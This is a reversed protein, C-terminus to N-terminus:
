PTALHASKRKGAIHKPWCIAEAEHGQGPQEEERRRAAAAVRQDERRRRAREVAPQQILQHRQKLLLGAEVHLHDRDAGALRKLHPPAAVRIDQEYMRRSSLLLEDFFAVAHVPLEDHVVIEDDHTRGTIGRFEPAHRVRHRCQASDLRQLLGEDAATVVGARILQLKRDPCLQAIIWCAFAPVQLRPLPHSRRELDGVLAFGIRDRVARRVERQQVNEIQFNQVFAIRTEQVDVM